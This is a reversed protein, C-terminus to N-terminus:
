SPFRRSLPRSGRRNRFRKALEPILSWAVPGDLGPIPLLNFAAVALNYYSLIGLAVNLAAFPTFGVTAVWLAIPMGVAAQAVVGGWAIAAHDYRSWPEQFHCLGHIPYLHISEVHLRKRQAAVMHGCEHILIVGLYAACASLVEAPQQVAAIAVVVGIALLSWHAYVPVGKIRMVETFKNFGPRSFTM